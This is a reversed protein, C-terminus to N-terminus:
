RPRRRYRDCIYLALGSIGVVVAVFVLSELLFLTHEWQWDMDNVRM